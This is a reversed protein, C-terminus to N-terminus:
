GEVEGAWPIAGQAGEKEVTKAACRVAWEVAGKVDVCEEGPEARNRFVVAGAYAGVFTDGAATTDVVKQVEMAPVMGRRGRCDRYFAGRAGLTVVVCGVGRGLFGEAIEELEEVGLGVEEGDGKGACQRRSLLLAESENVVLHALGRFVSEPLEVAPAANLLVDVGEERCVEVVRVVTRVRMELQLVVLQPRGGGATRPLTEFDAPGLSWNAGPSFLIRNEGTAEDVIITSVGTREGAKVVVGSVDLGEARLGSLLAHGFPDSGVAGILRVSPAPSSTASPRLLRHCAVFQNAGKGGPGTTFSTATLTEGAHPLRPTTTILDTNLSGIVLISM